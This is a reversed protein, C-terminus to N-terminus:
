VVLEWAPFADDIAVKSIEGVQALVLHYLRERTKLM